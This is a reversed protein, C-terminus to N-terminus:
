SPIFLLWAKHTYVLSHILKNFSILLDIQLHSLRERLPPMLKRHYTTIQCSIIEHLQIRIFPSASM